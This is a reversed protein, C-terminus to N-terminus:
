APPLKVEDALEAGVPPASVKGDPDLDATASSCGAITLATTVVFLFLLAKVTESIRVDKRWVIKYDTMFPSPNVKSIV